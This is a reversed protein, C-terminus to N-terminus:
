SGHRSARRQRLKLMLPMLRRGFPTKLLLRVPAPPGGPPFGGPLGGPPFGGPPGGPPFGGPPGGPPAAGQEPPGGGPPGPPAGGPSAARPGGGGPPMAAPHPKIERVTTREAVDVIPEESVQRITTHDSAGAPAESQVNRVTTRDSADPVVPEAPVNRVNTRDGPHAPDPAPEEAVPRVTTRDSAQAVPEAVPEAPAQAVPEAVPEAPVEAVPEAPVERVTTRDAAAGEAGELGAEGRSLVTRQTEILPQDSAAIEVAFNTTGMKLTAAATVLTASSIRQGDVFTGNLSGLDEIELGAAVPRVTAHRRSMEWDEILVDAGERGIVLERDCEISQGEAPGSTIRLTSM